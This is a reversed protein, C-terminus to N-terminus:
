SCGQRENTHLLVEVVKIRPLPSWLKWIHYEIDNFKSTWLFQIKTFCITLLIITWVKFAKLKITGRHPVIFKLYSTPKPKPLVKLTDWVRKSMMKSLLKKTRYSIWKRISNSTEDYNTYIENHSVSERFM